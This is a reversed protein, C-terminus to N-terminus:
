EGVGPEPRERDAQQLQEDASTVAPPESASPGTLAQAVRRGRRLPPAGVPDSAGEGTRSPGAVKLAFRQGGDDTVLWVASSGGRGLLRGVHLGQVVPPPVDEASSGSPLPGSPADPLGGGRVTGRHNGAPLSPAADSM